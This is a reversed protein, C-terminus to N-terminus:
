DAAEQDRRKKSKSTALNATKVRGSVTFDAVPHRVSISREADDIVALLGRGVLRCFMDLTEIDLVAEGKLVSSIHAQSVGLESAIAAQTPEPRLAALAIRLTAAIERSLDSPGPSPM